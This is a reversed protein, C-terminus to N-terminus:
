KGVSTVFHSHADIAKQYRKNAINWVRITKDDSSSVLYKGGPHFKLGRVWNDHGTQVPLAFADVLLLLTCPINLVLTFLCMGTIADWFKITKDRSGSALFPGTLKNSAPTAPAATAKTDGNDTNSHPLPAVALAENVPEHASAPAWAICEVVHDHERLEAKCEKTALSWVRM